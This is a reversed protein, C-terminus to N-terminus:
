EVRFVLDRTAILEGITASLRLAYAGPKLTSIPLRINVDASRDKAFRAPEITETGEDVAQGQADLLRRQLTVPALAAKGGQYIRVFATSVTSRALARDATPVMPLLDAVAGEGAFSPRPDAGVIIGSMSLPAQAFDPIEIDTYVSGSQALSASLAGVRLTYRGPKLNVTTVLEARPVARRSARVNVNTAQRWDGRALGSRTFARLEVDLTEVTRGSLPVVLDPLDAGLVIVVSAEEKGRQAFPAATIRLPLDHKPEIGRVAALQPRLKADEAAIKARQKEDELFYGSRTLAHVDPRNVKVEIRRYETAPPTATRYGILYYSKNEIFMQQIAPNFDNSLVIKQGSTAEALLDNTNGVICGSSGFGCSNFSYVRVGSRAAVELLERPGVCYNGFGVYVLLRRREPAVKLHDIASKMTKVSGCRFFADGMAAAKNADRMAMDRFKGMGYFGIVFDDLAAFLKARSNTFDRADFDRLTFVVAMRDESSIKEVVSRAIKKVAQYAWMEPHATADDLMLVWLRGDSRENSDVDPVVDDEWATLRKTENPLEVPDFVVIEQPVGNELITFDNAALGQVPRRQNDFVSM